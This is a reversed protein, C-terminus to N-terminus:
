ASCMPVQSHQVTEFRIMCEVSWPREMGTARLLCGMRSCCLVTGESGLTRRPAPEAYSANVYTLSTEIRKKNPVEVGAIRACQVKVPGNRQLRVSSSAPLTVANNVARFGEYTRLTPKQTWIHTGPDDRSDRECSLRGNSTRLATLVHDM